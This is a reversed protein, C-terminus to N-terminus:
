YNKLVKKLSSLLFLVDNESIQEGPSFRLGSFAKNRNMKMATLAPSPDPSESACASGSSVAIGEASLMRVLVGGQKGPCLVHLIGPFAYEEPITPILGLEMCGRRLMSSIKKLQTLREDRRAAAKEAAFAMTFIQAPIVRGSLYHQQRAKACRDLFADRGQWAPNILLAAGGPAGLKNGSVAIIDACNQDLPIKCAGQVADLFRIAGPAASFLKGTDQLVGLESQILHFAALQWKGEHPILRGTSPDPPFFTMEAGPLRALAASLAPHELKSSVIGPTRLDLGHILTNFTGTGSNDWVAAWDPSGTVALSLKKEAAAIKQRLEFGAAHGAEQNAYDSLLCEAMFDATEQDPQAAAANDFYIM